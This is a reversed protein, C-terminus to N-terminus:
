VMRLAKVTKFREPRGIYALLQPITKEGLGPITALLGQRQKL